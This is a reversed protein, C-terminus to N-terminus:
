VGSQEFAAEFRVSLRKVPSEPGDDSEPHSARDSAALPPPKMMYGGHSSDSKPSTRLRLSKIRSRRGPTPGEGGSDHASCFDHYERADPAFCALLRALASGAQADCCVPVGSIWKILEQQEIVHVALPPEPTEGRLVFASEDDIRVTYISVRGVVSPPPLVVLRLSGTPSGASRACEHSYARPLYALAAALEPDDDDIETVTSSRRSPPTSRLHHRGLADDSGAEAREVAAAALIGSMEQENVSKSKQHEHQVAAAVANAVEGETASTARRHRARALRPMSDLSRESAPSPAAAAVHPALWPMRRIASLPRRETPDPRMLAGVVERASASVAEWAGASFIEEVGAFNSVDDLLDAVPQEQEFPAEGSLLVFLTAGLAWLDVAAGDYRRPPAAGSAGGEEHHEYFWPVVEPAVYLPTGCLGEVGEARLRTAVGLDILKVQSLDKSVFCVNEPKVDRHCWGHAHMHGIADVLQAFIRRTHQETYPGAEEIADILDGGNVLELELAASTRTLVLERLSVISPHPPLARLARVEEVLAKLVEPNSALENAALVKLATPPPPPSREAGRSQHRRVLHVTASQGDGLMKQMHYLADLSPARLPRLELLHLLERPPTAAALHYPPHKAKAAAAAAAAAAAHPSQHQQHKDDTTKNTNHSPKKKAGITRFHAFRSSLTARAM